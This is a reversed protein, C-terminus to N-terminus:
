KALSIVSPYLLLFYVSFRNLVGQKYLFIFMLIYIFKNFFGLSQVTEIFPLPIFALMWSANEVTSALETVNEGSRIEMVAAIYRFQDPMYNTPFIVDNLIFPVFCHALLILTYNRPLKAINSAIVVVLICVLFNPLDYFFSTEFYVNM